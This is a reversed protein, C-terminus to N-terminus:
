TCKSQAPAGGHTDVQQIFATCSSRRLVTRSIIQCRQKSNCKMDDLFAKTDKKGSQISSVLKSVKNNKNNRSIVINNALTVATGNANESLVGGPLFMHVLAKRKTKAFRGV